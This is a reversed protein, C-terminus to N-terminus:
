AKPGAVIADRIFVTQVAAWTAALAEPWTIAKAIAGGISAVVISVASWFTKSKILESWNM